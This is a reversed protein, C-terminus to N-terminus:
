RKQAWWLSANSSQPDQNAPHRAPDALWWLALTKSQAARENPNLAAPHDAPVGSEAEAAQAPQGASAPDRGAPTTDEATSGCAAVALLGSLLAVTARPHNMATNMPENRPGAFSSTATTM